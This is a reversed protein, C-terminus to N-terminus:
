ATERDSKRSETEALRSEKYAMTFILGAAKRLAKTALKLFTSQMGYGPRIDSLERVDERYAWALAANVHDLAETASQAPAYTTDTPDAESPGDEAVEYGLLMNEAPLAPFLRMADFTQGEETTVTAVEVGNSNVLRLNHLPTVGDQRFLRM